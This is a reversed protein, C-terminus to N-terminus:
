SPANKYITFFIATTNWRIHCISWRKKLMNKKWVPTIIIVVIIIIIIFIAKYHNHHYHYHHLHQLSSLLSPVSSSSPAEAAAAASKVIIHFLIIITISSLTPTHLRRQPGNQQYIQEPFPQSWPNEHLISTGGPPIRILYKEFSQSGNIMLTSKATRTSVRAEFRQKRHEATYLLPATSVFRGNKAENLNSAFM